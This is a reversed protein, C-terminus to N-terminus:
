GIGLVKHHPKVHEDVAAYAALRKANEEPSLNVQTVMGERHVGTGIRGASLHDISALPHDSSSHSPRRRNNSSDSASILSINGVRSAFKVEEQNSM